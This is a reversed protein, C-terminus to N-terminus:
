DNSVYDRCLHYEVFGNLSYDKKTEVKFIKNQFIVKDATELNLAGSKAHIWVWEWSRQGEPKLELQEDRLPQWVGMFNFREEKYVLDGEDVDQIIRVLTLPVEWGNLTQSMNPMGSALMSKISRNRSFNFAM